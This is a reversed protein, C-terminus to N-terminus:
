TLKSVAAAFVAFLIAMVIGSILMIEMHLERYLVAGKPIV